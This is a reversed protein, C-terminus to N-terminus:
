HAKSHAESNLFLLSNKHINWWQWTRSVTFSISCVYIDKCIVLPYAITFVYQCNMLTRQQAFIKKKKKNIKSNELFILALNVHSINRSDATLEVFSLVNAVYRSCVFICEKIIKALSVHRHGFIASM